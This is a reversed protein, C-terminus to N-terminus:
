TFLFQWAGHRLRPWSYKIGEITWPFINMFAPSSWKVQRMDGDGISKDGEDGRVREGSEKKKRGDEEKERESERRKRVRLTAECWPGVGIEEGTIPEDLVNRSLLPPAKHARKHVSSVSQECILQRCIWEAPPSLSTSDPALPCPSIPPLSPSVCISCVSSPFYFHSLLLPSAASLLTQALYTSVKLFGHVLWPLNKWCCWNFEELPVM